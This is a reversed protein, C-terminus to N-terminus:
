EARLLGSSYRPIMFPPSALLGCILKHSAQGARETHDAVRVFPTRPSRLPAQRFSVRFSKLGKMAALLQWHDSRGTVDSAVLEEPSQGVLQGSRQSSASAPAGV